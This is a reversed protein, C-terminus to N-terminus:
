SVALPRSATRPPQAHGLVDDDPPDEQVLQGCQASLADILTDRDGNAM